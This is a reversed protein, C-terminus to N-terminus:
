TVSQYDTLCYFRNLPHFLTAPFVVSFGLLKRETQYNARNTLRLDSVPAAHEAHLKFM